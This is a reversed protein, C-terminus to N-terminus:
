RSVASAREAFEREVATRDVARGARLTREVDRLLPERPNLTRAERVHELAERRRGAEASALGLELHAFWNSPNREVARAYAALMAGLDGRRGAIIGAVVDADDTLPNLRRARELRDAAAAPDGTWEAAATRIEKSALWPPVLVVAAAVAAAAGGFRLPVSRPLRRAGEGAVAGNGGMGLWALAPLTLGPFAWFWDVSGHVLWYAAAVVGGLLAGRELADRGRARLCAVAAAALFLAFLVTGVIGTQSVIRVVLSHPHLPEEWGRRERVYDTAFNEAGVGTLPREAFSELAVRWFDYRNSGLGSGLHSGTASPEQLTTFDDWGDALRDAPSGAATAAWAGAGVVVLAAAALVIASLRRSTEPPADVREDARALLWGVLGAGATAALLALLADRVPGTVSAESLAPYVDLLVPLTAAVAGGTLALAALSRARRPVVALQVLCVVGFAIVSGRSQCLVATGLLATACAALVGRLAPQLGRRASLTLIAWYAVLFLAAAANQYGAPAALRGDIFFSAPDPDTAARVLTGLAVLAVGAGYCGVLLVPLGRPLPTVAFLSFAALYVLTRTSGELADGRVDSWSISAFCWLTFAALAAIAVATPRPPRMAVGTAVVLALLVVLALGVPYWLTPQFGADRLALLLFLVVAAVAPLAEATDARVHEAASPGDAASRM